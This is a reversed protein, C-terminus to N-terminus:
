WYFYPPYRGPPAGILGGGWYGPGYGYHPPYGGYPGYGFPPPYSAYGSGPFPYGFPPPYFGYGANDGPYGYRLAFGSDSSFLNRSVSGSGLGSGGLGSGGLGSGGLGSGYGQPGHFGGGYGPPAYAGNGHAYPAAPPGGYAPSGGYAPYGGFSPHGGNAWPGHRYDRTSSFERTASFIDLSLHPWQDWDAPWGKDDTAPPLRGAEYLPGFRRLGLTTVAENPAAAQQAVARNAFSPTPTAEHSPQGFSFQSTTAVVYLSAVCAVISRIVTAREIAPLSKRWLLCGCVAHDLRRAVGSVLVVTVGAIGGRFLM